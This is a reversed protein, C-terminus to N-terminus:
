RRPALTRRHQSPQEQATVSVSDTSGLRQRPPTLVTFIMTNETTPALKKTSPDPPTTIASQPPPHTARREAALDAFIIPGLRSQATTHCNQAINGPKHCNTSTIVDCTVYIVYNIGDHEVNITHPIKEMNPIIMYVLRRFSKIHKLDAHM